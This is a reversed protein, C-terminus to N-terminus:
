VAYTAASNPLVAGSTTSNSGVGRRLIHASAERVARVGAHNLLTVAEVAGLGLAQVEAAEGRLLLM